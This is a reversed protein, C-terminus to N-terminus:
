AAASEPQADASRSRGAVCRRLLLLGLLSALGVLIMGSPDDLRAPDFEAQSTLLALPVVVGAVLALSHRESWGGAVRRATRASVAWGLLLTIFFVPTAPIEASPLLAIGALLSGALLATHVFVRWPPLPRAPRRPRPQWRWARWVFWAGLAGLWWLPRIPGRLRLEFATGVLVAGCGFAALALGAHDLWPRCRADPWILEAVLLPVLVVLATYHILAALTWLWNLQYVRGYHALPGIDVWNGSTLTGRAFGETLIALAAGLLLMAPWGRRWRMALEHVVLCGCGALAVNLVLTLPHFFVLPPQEGTLLQSVAPALLLVAFAAPHTTAHRGTGQYSREM